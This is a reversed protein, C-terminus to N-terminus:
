TGFSAIIWEVHIIPGDKLFCYYPIHIIVREQLKLSRIVAVSLGHRVLSIINLQQFVYMVNNSLTQYYKYSTLMENEEESM